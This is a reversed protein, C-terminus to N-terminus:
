GAQLHGPMAALGKDVGTLLSAYSARRERWAPLAAPAATLRRQQARHLDRVTGDVRKAEGRGIDVGALVARLIAPQSTVAQQAPAIADAADLYVVAM